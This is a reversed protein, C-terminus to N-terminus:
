APGAQRRPRHDSHSVGSGPRTPKPIVRGLRFVVLRQYEPVIRIANAVLVVAVVVIAALGCLLPTLADM